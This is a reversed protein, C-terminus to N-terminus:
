IQRSGNMLGVTIAIMTRERYRDIVPLLERERRELPSGHTVLAVFKLVLDHAIAVKRAL